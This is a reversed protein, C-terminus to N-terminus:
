NQIDRAVKIAHAARDTVPVQRARQAAGHAVDATVQERAAVVADEFWKSYYAAGGVRGTREEELELLEQIELAPEGQGLSSLCLVLCRMDMMMQHSEGTTSTWALSDAYLEIARVEDGRYHECDAHIAALEWVPDGRALEDAEALVAEAGLVDEADALAHALFVLGRLILRRDDSRRLIALAERATAISEDNRGMEWRIVWSLPGLGLAREREDDVSRWASIAQDTLQGSDEDARRLQACKALITIIWAREAASGANSELARRLEHALESLVGAYSWYPSIAACLRVHLDPDRERAWAVAPRIEDLVAQLDLRREASAGWKWLRAAYSM